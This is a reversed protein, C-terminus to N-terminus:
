QKMVRKTLAALYRRLQISELFAAQRKNYAWVESFYSLTNFIGQLQLAITKREM